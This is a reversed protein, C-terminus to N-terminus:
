RFVDKVELIFEKFKEYSRMPVFLGGIAFVLGLVAVSCFLFVMYARFQVELRLEQLSNLLNHM